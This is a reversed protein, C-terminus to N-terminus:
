RKLEIVLVRIAYQSMNEDTHLEGSVDKTLYYAHDKQLNLYHTKGANNTIKLTGADLAVIVRNYEHRHIKLIQNKNPYIITKWVNVENNSFEPIRITKVDAASATLNVCLLILSLLLKRINKEHTLM